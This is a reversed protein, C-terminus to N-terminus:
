RCLRVNDKRLEERPNSPGLLGGQQRLWLRWGAAHTPRPRVVLCTTGGPRNVIVHSPRLPIAVMSMLLTVPPTAGAHQGAAKPVHWRGFHCGCWMPKELVQNH